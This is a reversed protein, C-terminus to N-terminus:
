PTTQPTLKTWPFGGCGSSAPDSPDASAMEAEEASAADFSAQCYWLEDGTMAWDFRSYQGPNYENMDNNYAIILQAENDFREVEFVAPDSGEYTIM